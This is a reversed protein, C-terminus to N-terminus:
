RLDEEWNEYNYYPVDMQKIEYDIESNNNRIHLVHSEEDGISSIFQDGLEDNAQEIPIVQDDEDTLVDDSYLYYYRLENGTQGFEEPVIYEINPSETDVYTEVKPEISWDTPEDSEKEEEDAKYDESLNAYLKEDPIINLESVKPEKTPLEATITTVMTDNDDTKENIIEKNSIYNKKIHHRMVLYTGAIGLIAGFVTGKLYLFRLDNKTVNFEEM